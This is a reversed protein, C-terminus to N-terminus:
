QDELFKCWSAANPCSSLLQSWWSWSVHVCVIPFRGVLTILTLVRGGTNLSALCICGIHSSKIKCLRDSCAYISAYDSCVWCICGNYNPIWRKLDNSSANSFGCHHNAKWIRGISSWIKGLFVHLLVCRLSATCICSNYCKMREPPGDSFVCWSVFCPPSALWIHGIFCTACSVTQYVTTFLQILTVMTVGRTCVMQPHVHFYVTALPEICTALLALEWRRSCIFQGPM